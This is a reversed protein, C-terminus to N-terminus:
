LSDMVPRVEVAGGGLVLPCSKAIELAHELDRAEVVIFGLVIDKAETFPGDTVRLESGRVTKGAQELPLGRNKLQNKAELEKIWAMWAQLSQQAREPTGMAQRVGAPNDRLLFVFDSM